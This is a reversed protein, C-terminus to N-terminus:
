GGVRKVPYGLKELESIIRERQDGQIEIVGDKVTGGTGCKTKLLTALEEIGAPHMKFDFITTVGKGKRGKTERGVKLTPKAKAEKEKKPMPLEELDRPPPPGLRKAGTILRATLADVERSILDLVGAADDVEWYETKDDWAPHRELILPKHETEKLAIIKHAATFDEATVAQPLRNTATAADIKLAKLEALTAKAIAGPNNVGREIALAKSTAQWPLSMKQAIYNFYIEAFRSRSYNGTCLFLINKKPKM